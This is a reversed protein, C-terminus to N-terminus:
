KSIIAFYNSNSQEYSKLVVFVQVSSFNFLLYTLDGNTQVTKPSKLYMEYTNLSSLADLIQASLDM